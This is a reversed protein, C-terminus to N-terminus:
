SSRKRLEEAVAQRIAAKPARRGTWLRIQEFGQEMLVEIADIMMWEKDRMSQLQKTLLSTPNPAYATDLFMGRRKQFIRSLPAFWELDNINDLQPIASVVIDPPNWDQSLITGSLNTLVNIKLQPDIRQLFEAMEYARPPNRNIVQINVLGLHFLAYVAARALGGAGIVLVSLDKHPISDYGNYSLCRLVCTHISRWDTNEGVPGAPSSIITNVAGIAEAHPTLRSLLSLIAIKHPGRISAGGFDDDAIAEAYAEVTEAEKARYQHPLGLQRFAVSHILPSLSNFLGNGFLYFNRSKLLRVDLNDENDKATNVMMVVDAGLKVSEKYFSYTVPSLWPTQGTYDHWSAIVKSNGKMGLLMIKTDRPVINNVDVYEIGMKLALKLIDTTYASADANRDLDPMTGGQSRTRLAFIVPLDSFRRLLALQYIVSEPHMDRLLDVRLEWCDIGVSLEQIHPIALAIHEYTLSLYYSRFSTFPVHNTYTGRIFKLLRILDKNVYPLHAPLQRATTLNNHLTSSLSPHRDVTEQGGVNDELSMFLFTSVDRIEAERYPWEGLFGELDFDSMTTRLYEAVSDSRRTVHIVPGQTTGYEYLLRRIRVHDLMDAHCVIVKGRGNERIVDSFAEYREELLDVENLGASTNPLRYGTEILQWHLAQAAM